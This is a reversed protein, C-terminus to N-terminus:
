RSMMLYNKSVKTGVLSRKQLLQNKTTRPKDDVVVVALPFIEKDINGVQAGNEEVDMMLLLM